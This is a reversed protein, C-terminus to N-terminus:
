GAAPSAPRGRFTAARHPCQARGAESPEHGWKADVQQLDLSGMVFSHSLAPSLGGRIKQACRARGGYRRADQRGYLAPMKGGPVVAANPLTDPIKGFWKRRAPLGPEVAPLIGAAVLNMPLRWPEVLACRSWSGFAGALRVCELRKAFRHSATVARWRKSHTSSAGAKQPLNM